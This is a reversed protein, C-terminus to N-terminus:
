IVKLTHAPVLASNIVHMCEMFTSVNGKSNNRVFSVIICEKDRGQYKDITNVEVQVQETIVGPSLSPNSHITSSVFRSTVSKLKQQILNQQHRLPTIVGINGATLGFQIYANLCWSVTNFTCKVVVDRQSNCVTM